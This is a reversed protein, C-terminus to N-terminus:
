SIRLFGLKMTKQTSHIVLIVQFSIFRFKTMMSGVTSIIEGIKWCRQGRQLTVILNSAQSTATLSCTNTPLSTQASSEVQLLLLGGSTSKEWPNSVYSMVNILSFISFDPRTLFELMCSLFFLECRNIKGPELRNFIRTSLIWHTIRWCPYVIHKARQRSPNFSYISTIQSWFHAYRSCLFSLYKHSLTTIDHGIGMIYDIQRYSLRHNQGQLHFTFVGAADDRTFTSLFEMKPQKYTRDCLNLFYHWGIRYFLTAVGYHVRLKTM